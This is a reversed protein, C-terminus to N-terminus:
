GTWLPPLGAGGSQRPRGSVSPPGACRCAAPGACASPTGGPLLALRGGDLFLQEGVKDVKGGLVARAGDVPAVRVLGDRGVTDKHAKTRGAVPAKGGGPDHLKALPLLPQRRTLRKDRTTVVRYFHAHIERPLERVIERGGREGRRMLDGLPPPAPPLAGPAPESVGEQSSLCWGHARSHDFLETQISRQLRLIRREDRLLVEHRVWPPAHCRRCPACGKVLAQTGPCADM